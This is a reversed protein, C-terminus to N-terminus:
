RGKCLAPTRRSREHRGAARAGSRVRWRGGRDEVVVRLHHYDHRLPRDVIVSRSWASRAQAPPASLRATRTTTAVVYGASLGRLRQPASEGGRVDHDLVEHSRFRQERVRVDEDSVAAKATRERPSAGHHGPRLRPCFLLYSRCRRASRSRLVAEADVEAALARLGAARMPAPADHGEAVWPECGVDSRQPGLELRPRGWPECRPRAAGVVVSM